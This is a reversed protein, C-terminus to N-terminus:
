TCFVYEIDQSVWAQGDTVERASRLAEGFTPYGYSYIWAVGKKDIGHVRFFGPCVRIMQSKMLQFAIGLNKVKTKVGPM